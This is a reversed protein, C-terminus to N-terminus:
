QGCCLPSTDTVIDSNTASFLKSENSQPKDLGRSQCVKHIRKLGLKAHELLVPDIEQTHGADSTRGDVMAFKRSHALVEATSHYFYKSSVVCRSM